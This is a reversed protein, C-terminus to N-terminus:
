CRAILLTGRGKMVFSTLVAPLLLTEGSKLSMRVGECEVTAEGELCMLVTFSSDDYSLDMDGDLLVRDVYFHDCTALRAHGSSPDPPESKYDEHFTYDIADKALDTHLERTNGHADRRDYDYIRYTIDSSEQIEALLNGAGIAHVRGAPLFFVDGPHSDHVALAEEIRNEDVMRVYDEPTMERNLGSYIKAGEDAHIIYWMETKGLSDHREKALADDPHVQVSLNDNADILKALLPFAGEYKELVNRGVLEAGFRETLDKITMGKYPGEAVVAEHGPVASIEWSEGINPAMQEIGKYRCIREGGWIVSKFYPIFRIPAKDIM